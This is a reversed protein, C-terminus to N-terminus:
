GFKERELEEIMQYEHIELLDFCENLEDMFSVYSKIDKHVTDILFDFGGNVEHLNNISAHNRLFTLLEDKQSSPVKLALTARHHYGMKPFDVLTTYKTIVKERHLRNIKDYITSIPIAINHSISALSIRSDKRLHNIIWREKEEM